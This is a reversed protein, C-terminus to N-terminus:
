GFLTPQQDAEIPAVPLGLMQKIRNGTAIAYGAYDNNMYGWVSNADRSAQIIQDQWWLLRDTLDIQEANLKALRHHEGIWRIYLFDTTVIIPRPPAVYDGAVLAVRHERLLEYTQDTFWDRDRFEMAIRIDDPLSKLFVPLRGLNNVGFNPPFQMLVVGLKSGFTGVVELFQAMLGINRDLLGEHTIVRSCKLSFRFDDPVKAFWREIKQIDPIAYFTTDLEVSNFHRAYFELYDEPKKGAPYFVGQWDTYGFGVTGLRWDTM